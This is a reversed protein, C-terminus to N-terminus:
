ARQDEDATPTPNAEFCGVNGSFEQRGPVSSLRNSDTESAAAHSWKAIVRRAAVGTEFFDDGGERGVLLQLRLRAAQM